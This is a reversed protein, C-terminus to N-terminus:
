PRAGGGQPMPQGCTTCRFPQSGNAVAAIIWVPIWLGFLFLSVLAHALHATGRKTFLRSQQCYACTAQAHQIAM